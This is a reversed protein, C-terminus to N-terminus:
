VDLGGAGELAKALSGMTDAWEADSRKPLVEEWMTLCSGRLQLLGEPRAFFWMHFHAGGDGFRYVHVQGIGGLSKVAVEIRVILAGLEATHAPPLTELDFHQRTYLLVAAPVSRPGPDVLVWHDNSLLVGEDGRRCAFCPRGGPDGARPPEPLVPDDLARVRIDGEFPFIDVASMDPMAMRGDSSESARVDLLIRDTFSSIPTEGM